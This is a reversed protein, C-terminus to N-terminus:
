TTRPSWALREVPPRMGERGPHADESAGEQAGAKSGGAGRQGELEGRVEIEAADGNAVRPAETRPIEAEKGREMEPHGVRQRLVEGEDRGAAHTEELRERPGADAHFRRDGAPNGESRSTL